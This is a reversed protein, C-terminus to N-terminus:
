IFVQITSQHLKNACIPSETMGSSTIQYSSLSSDDSGIAEDVPSSITPSTSASVFNSNCETANISYKRFMALISDASAAKQCRGSTGLTLM